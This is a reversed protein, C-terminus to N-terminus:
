PKKLKLKRIAVKYRKRKYDWGWENLLDYKFHNMAWTTLPIKVLKDVDDSKYGVKASCYEVDYLTAERKRHDILVPFGNKNFYWDYRKHLNRLLKTKM